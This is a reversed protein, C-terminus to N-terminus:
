QATVMPGLTAIDCHEDAGGHVRSAGNEQAAQSFGRFDRTVGPETV